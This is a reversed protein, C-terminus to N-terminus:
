KAEAKLEEDGIAIILVLFSNLGSPVIIQSHSEM